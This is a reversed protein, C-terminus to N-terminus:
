YRGDHRSRTRNIILRIRGNVCHNRSPYYKLATLVQARVRIVTMHSAALRQVTMTTQWRCVIIIWRQRHRVLHIRSHRWVTTCTILPVVICRHKRRVGFRKWLQRNPNPYSKVCQNQRRMKIVCQRSSIVLLARVTQCSQKTSTQSTMTWCRGCPRVRVVTKLTHVRRPRSPAIVRRDSRAAPTLVSCSFWCVQWAILQCLGACVATSYGSSLSYAIYTSHAEGTDWVHVTVVYLQCLIELVCLIWMFIRPAFPCVVPASYM